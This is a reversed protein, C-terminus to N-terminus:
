PIPRGVAVGDLTAKGPEAPLPVPQWGETGFRVDREVFEWVVLKKGRLLEPKRSLQQRVLTSAGGDNVISALPM